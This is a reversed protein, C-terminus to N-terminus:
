QNGSADTTTNFTTATKNLAFQHCGNYILSTTSAAEYVTMTISQYSQTSDYTGSTLMPASSETTAGSNDGTGDSTWSVPSPGPNKGRLDGSLTVVIYPATEPNGDVTVKNCGQTRTSSDVKGGANTNFQTNYSDIAQQVSNTETFGVGCTNGSNNGIGTLSGATNVCRVADDVSTQTISQYSSDLFATETLGIAFDAVIAFLFIFIVSMVLIADGRDNDDRIRFYKEMM